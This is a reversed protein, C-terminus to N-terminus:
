TRRLRIKPEGLAFRRSGPGGRTPNELANLDTSFPNPTSSHGAHHQIHQILAPTIRNRHDLVVKATAFVLAQFLANEERRRKEMLALFIPRIDDHTIAIRFAAEFRPSHRGTKIANLNGRPREPEPGDEEQLCQLPITPSPRASKRPPHPM